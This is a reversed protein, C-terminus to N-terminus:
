IGRDQTKIQNEPEVFKKRVHQLTLVVAITLAVLAMFIPLVPSIDAVFSIAVLVVLFATVVWMNVHHSNHEKRKM